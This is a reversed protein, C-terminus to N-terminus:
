LITRKTDQKNPILIPNVRGVDGREEIYNEFNVDLIRYVMLESEFYKYAYHDLELSEFPAAITSSSEFPDRYMKVTMDYLTQDDVENWRFM